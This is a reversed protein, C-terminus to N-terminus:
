KNSPLPTPAMVDPNEATNHIQGFTTGAACNAEDGTMLYGKGARFMFWKGDEAAWVPADNVVRDTIVYRLDQFEDTLWPTTSGMEFVLARAASVASQLARKTGAICARKLLAAAIREQAYYPVVPLMRDLLGYFQVEVALESRQTETLDPSLTFMVPALTWYFNSAVDDVASYLV